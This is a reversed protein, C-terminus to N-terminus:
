DEHKAKPANRNSNGVDKPTAKKGFDVIKRFKNKFFLRRLADATCCKGLDPMHLIELEVSVSEVRVCDKPLMFSFDTSYMCDCRLRNKGYLVEIWGMHHETMCVREFVCSVNKANTYKVVYSFDNETRNFVLDNTTTNCINVFVKRGEIEGRCCVEQTDMSGDFWDDWSTISGLPLEKAEVHTAWASFASLVLLFSAARKM